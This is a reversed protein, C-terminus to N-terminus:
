YANFTIAKDSLKSRRRQTSRGGRGDGGTKLQLSDRIKAALQIEYKANAVFVTVLNRTKEPKSCDESSSDATDHQLRGTRGARHVFDSISRPLEFMIVEDIQGKFDLGRASIDTTVLLKLLKLGKMTNEPSRTSPDLGHDPKSNFAKFNEKRQKPTLDGHFSGLFVQESDLSSEMKASLIYDVARCSEVSNCFILVRKSEYEEPKTQQRDKWNNAVKVANILRDVEETIEKRMDKKSCQLFRLAIRSSLGTMGNVEENTQSVSSGSNRSFSDSQTMQSDSSNTSPSAMIVNPTEKLLGAYKRIQEFSSQSTDRGKESFNRGVTAGVFIITPKNAKDKGTTEKRNLLIPLLKDLDERFGSNRGLLADAEDIVIYEVDGLFLMRSTQPQKNWQQFVYNPTSILVDVPKSLLKKQIVKRTLKEEISSNAKSGGMLSISTFRDYHCLEKCVALTQEILERTPTFVLIKPRGPALSNVYATIDGNFKAEIVQKERQKMLHILPLLFALTKGSGTESSVVYNKQKKPSCLISSILAKQILSPQTIKM